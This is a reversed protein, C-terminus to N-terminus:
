VQKYDSARESINYFRCWKRVGNDSVGFKKGVKVFNSEKLCSILTEKDPREVIRRSEYDIKGEKHLIKM